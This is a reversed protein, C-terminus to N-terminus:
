FEISFKNELIKLFNEHLKSRYTNSAIIISTKEEDLFDV